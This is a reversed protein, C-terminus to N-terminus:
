SGTSQHMLNKFFTQQAQKSTNDEYCCSLKHDRTFLVLLLCINLTLQIRVVFISPILEHNALYIKVSEIPHLKVRQELGKRVPKEYKESAGLSGQLWRLDLHNKVEIEGLIM